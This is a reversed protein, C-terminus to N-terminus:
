IWSRFWMRAYYDDYPLWEGTLVPYLYATNALVLLLYAGVAVAVWARRRRSTGPPGLAYGIVLTTALVLFPITAVAYFFFIPRQAYQFWPLYTAAVLGLIAGARWDRRGIWLVILVLAAAAAVWWIAPTGVGIVDRACKAAGCLEQASGTVGVPLDETAADVSAFEFQTPRALFLWRFPHAAYPHDSTLGTHFGYMEAHYHWLSRLADPVLGSLGTALNDAGWTRHMSNDALFWGTWSVVYAGAAVGVTAVFATIGDYVIGASYPRAVGAIRRASIDWLVVMLGCLALVYLASWKTGVALGFCVGAGIRWWRVGLTPGGPPIHGARQMASLRSALRVRGQDRDVLLCAVAAVLWFALLGDLLATRSMVISLGDLALLLGAITGLLTSRFLRRALRALILVTLTGFLAVGFRWGFPTLGFLQEGMAIMWKGVPPHVVYSPDAEFIDTRGDLIQTDIPLIGSDEPVDVIKREYGFRLLSYADKAYYTEDFVVQPPEGLRWFRLVGALVTVALPWVWGWSGDTPLPPCLRDRLETEADKAHAPDASLQGTPTSGHPQVDAPPEDAEPHAPGGISTTTV